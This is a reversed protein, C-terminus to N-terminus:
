ARPGGVVVRADRGAEIREEPEDAVAGTGVHQLAALAAVQEEGGQAGDQEV